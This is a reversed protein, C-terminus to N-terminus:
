PNVGAPARHNCPSHHLQTQTDVRRGAAWCVKEVWEWPWALVTRAPRAAAAHLHTIGWAGAM